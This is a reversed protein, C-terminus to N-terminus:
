ALQFSLVRRSYCAPREAGVCLAGLLAGLLAGPLVVRQAM